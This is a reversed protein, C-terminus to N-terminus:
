FKRQWRNAPLGRLIKYTPGTYVRQERWQRRVRKAKTVLYRRCSCVLSSNALLYILYIFQETQLYCIILFTAVCVDLLLVFKGISDDYDSSYIDSKFLRARSISKLFLNNFRRPTYYRCFLQSMFHPLSLSGYIEVWFDIEYKTRIESLNVVRQSLKYLYTHVRNVDLGRILWELVKIYRSGERTMRSSICM